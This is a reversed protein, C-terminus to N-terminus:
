SVRLSVNLGINIAMAYKQVAYCPLIYMTYHWFSLDIMDIAVSQVIPNDIKAQGSLLLVAGIHSPSRVVLRSELSNNPELVTPAAVNV